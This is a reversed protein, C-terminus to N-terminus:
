ITTSNPTFLELRPGPFNDDFCLLLTSIYIHQNKLGALKRLSSVRADPFCFLRLCFFSQMLGEQVFEDRHVSYVLASETQKTCEKGSQKLFHAQKAVLEGHVSLKASLM